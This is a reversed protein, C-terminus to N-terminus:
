VMHVQPLRNIIAFQTSDAAEALDPSSTPSIWPQEDDLIRGVHPEEM